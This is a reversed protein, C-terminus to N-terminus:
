LNCLVQEYKPSSQLYVPLKKSLNKQIGNYGGTPLAETVSMNLYQPECLM